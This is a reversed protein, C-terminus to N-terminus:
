RTKKPCGACRGANRSHIRYNKRGGLHAVLKESVHINPDRNLKKLTGATRKSIVSADIRVNEPALPYCDHKQHEQIKKIKM